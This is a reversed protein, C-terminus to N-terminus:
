RDGYTVRIPNGEPSVTLYGSMGEANDVYIMVEPTGDYTRMILHSITGGPVRVSDAAGALHGALADLNLAALDFQPLNPDRNSNPSGSTDFGGRFSWDQSRRPQGAVMREVSVYEDHFSADDILTDGFKARYADRFKGIGGATLPDIQEIVIPAIGAYPDQPGAPSDPAAPAQAVPVTAQAPEGDDTGAFMVVAAVAVATVLATGVALRRVPVPKRPEPRSLATDSPLQLDSITADLEALTKASMAARTRDRHEEDTLQGDGLAADLLGCTEVRDTDRARLSSPRNAM